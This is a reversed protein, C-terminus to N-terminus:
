WREGSAQDVVLAAAPGDDDVLCMSTAFWQIGRSRNTSGDVPDIVITPRGPVLALGSEESLIGVGARRLVACAAEDAVSVLAYQGDRVGSPGLDSVGRLAAAVADAVDHMLELGDTSVIGSPLTAATATM